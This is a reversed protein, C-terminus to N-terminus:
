QSIHDPIRKLEEIEEQTKAIKAATDKYHKEYNFRPKNEPNPRHYNDMLKRWQQEKEHIQIGVEEGYVLSRLYNLTRQHLSHNHNIAYEMTVIAHVTAQMKPLGFKEHMAILKEAEQVADPKHKM